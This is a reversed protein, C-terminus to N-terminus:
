GRLTAWGRKLAVDREMPLLRLVQVLGPAKRTGILVAWTIYVPWRLWPFYRLLVLTENYSAQTCATADFQTRQDRDFRAALFHDVAVAPDYILKWGRQKIALSFALDNHVQAGKGQLQADFRLDGIAQRRYSMNAGKLVDVERPQGQGIHHNGVVKGFWQVRGVVDSAGPHVTADQLRDCLYMWDRGGVGGVQPDAEFHATLRALWEPHPAADDDTIAIIDGTAAELGANLAAVQGPQTVVQPHVPLPAFSHSNLFAWTDQDSDRVVVLVENPPQHQQQLAALCRKLDEPRRYTPILVTTKM